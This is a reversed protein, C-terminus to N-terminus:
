PGIPGARLTGWYAYYTHTAMGLRMCAHTSDFEFDTFVASLRFDDKRRTVFWASEGERLPREGRWHMYQQGSGQEFPASTLPHDPLYFALLSATQYSDGLIAADLGSAGRRRRAGEFWETFPGRQAIKTFFGRKMVMPKVLEVHSALTMAAAVGIAVLAHRRWQGGTRYWRAFITGALAFATPYAVSAWHIEPRAGLSAYLFVALVVISPIVLVPLYAAALEPVSGDPRARRAVVGRAGRVLFWGVFCFLVPSLALLQGGLFRGISAFAGMLSTGAGEGLGHRGQFKLGAFDSDIMWLAFPVCLLAGLGVAVYPGPRQLARRGRASCLLAALLSPPLLAMQFKSLMGLGLTVGTAMWLWLRDRELAALTLIITATWFFLLPTDPQALLGNLGIVPAAAFAAGAWLGAIWPGAANERHPAVRAWQAALRIVLWVLGGLLLANVIRVGVPNTGALHTGLRIMYAVVPPHDHYGTALHDGRSWQWYYAEDSSLDMSGGQLVHFAVVGLVLWWIRRHVRAEGPMEQAAGEDPGVQPFALTRSALFNWLSAVLLGAGLALGGGTGAQLFAGPSAAVGAGGVGVALTQRMVAGTVCIALYLVPRARNAAECFTHRRNLRFTLWVAGGFAIAQAVFHGGEYGLDTGAMIRFLLLFLVADLVAALCGITAFQLYRALVPFRIRYLEVLQALYSFIVDGGLKSTGATRDTFIFPVEAVRKAGTRILVDLAIKYGKPRLDVGDLLEKRFAFFGSTTDRVSTLPRALAAAFRSTFRRSLPWNSVGGGRVRRSAVVVDVEGARIPRLLDPLTEPPHSLDADMVGVVDGRAQRFGEVVSNALGRDETRLVVRVRDEAGLGEILRRAEDATGDPSNDDVIILEAGEDISEFALLTRDLLARLNGRENYTPVVISLM